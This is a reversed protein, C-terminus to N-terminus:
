SKIKVTHMHNNSVILSSLFFGLDKISDYDIFAKLFVTKNKREDGTQFNQQIETKETTFLFCSGFTFM